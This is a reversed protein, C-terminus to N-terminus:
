LGMMAGGVAGGLIARTAADTVIKTPAAADQVGSRKFWFKGNHLETTGNFNTYDAFAPKGNPYYIRVACGVFLLPILLLINKM